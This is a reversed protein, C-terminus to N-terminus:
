AVGCCSCCTTPVYWDLEAKEHDDRDMQLGLPERAYRAGRDWDRGRDKERMYGREHERDRERLMRERHELERRREYERELELEKEMRHRHKERCHCAPIPLVASSFGNGSHSPHLMHDLNRHVHAAGTPFWWALGMGSVSPTRSWLM